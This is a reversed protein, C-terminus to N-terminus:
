LNPPPPTLEFLLLLLRYDSTSCNLKIKKQTGTRICGPHSGSKRGLPSITRNVHGCIEQVPGFTRDQMRLIEARVPHSRVKRARSPQFLKTNGPYISFDSSLSRISSVFYQVNYAVPNKARCILPWTCGVSTLGLMDTHFEIGQDTM